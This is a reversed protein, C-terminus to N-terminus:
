SAGNQELARQIEADMQLFEDLEHALILAGLSDYM